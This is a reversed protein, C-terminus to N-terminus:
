IACHLSVKRVILLRSLKGYSKRTEYSCSFLHLHVLISLATLNSILNNTREVSFLPFDTLSFASPALSRLCVCAFSMIASLLFPSCYDLKHDILDSLFLDCDVCGFVAHYTELHYSLVSAAFKDGIPIRTWYDIKLQNLRADCYQRDELPGSVASTRVPSIGRLPSPPSIPLSIENIKQGDATSSDSSCARQNPQLIHKTDISDFDMRPLIPFVLQHLVGLEFEISSVTSPLVARATQLDSPRVATHAAGKLSSLVDSVNRTSRLQRFIVQADYESSSKLRHLIDAHEKLEKRIQELQHSVPGASM